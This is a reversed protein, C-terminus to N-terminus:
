SLKDMVTEDARANMNQITKKLAKMADMAEM